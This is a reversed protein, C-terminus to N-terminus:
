FDYSCHRRDIDTKGNLYPIIYGRKGRNPATYLFLGPLRCAVWGVSWVAHNYWSSWELFCIASGESPLGKQKLFGDSCLSSDLFFLFFCPQSLAVLQRFSSSKWITNLRATILTPLNVVKVKVGWMVVVRWKLSTWRRVPPWTRTLLRASHFVSIVWLVLKFYEIM